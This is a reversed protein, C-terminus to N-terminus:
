SNSPNTCAITILAKGIFANVCRANFFDNFYLRTKPPLEALINEKSVPVISGNCAICRTFPRFAGHLNFYDMVERLQEPTQQSRLWYGRQIAKQKLLGVDRTLVVRSESVAVKAITKDDLTNEYHTDFGLMRLARALKGLHVDLV